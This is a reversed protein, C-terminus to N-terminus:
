LINLQFVEIFFIYGLINMGNTEVLWCVFSSVSCKTKGDRGNLNYIQTFVSEMLM